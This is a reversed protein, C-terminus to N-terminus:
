NVSPDETVQVSVGLVFCLIVFIGKGANSPTRREQRRRERRSRPGPHPHIPAVHGVSAVSRSPPTIHEFPLLPARGAVLLPPPRTPADDNRALPRRVHPFLARVLVPSTRPHM